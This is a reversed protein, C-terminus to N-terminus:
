DRNLSVTRVNYKPSQLDGNIVTPYTNYDNYQITDDGMKFSQDLLIIPVLIIM